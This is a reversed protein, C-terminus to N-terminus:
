RGNFKDIDISRETSGTVKTLVNMVYKVFDSAVVSWPCVLAPLYM